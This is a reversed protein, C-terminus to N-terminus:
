RHETAGRSFPVFVSSDPLVFINDNRLLVYRSQLQRYDWDYSLSCYDANALEPESRKCKAKCSSPKPGFPVSGLFCPHAKAQRQWRTLPKILIAPCSDHRYHQAVQPFSTYLIENRRGVANPPQKMEHIVPLTHLKNCVVYLLIIYSGDLTNHEAKCAYIEM